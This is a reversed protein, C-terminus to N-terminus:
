KQVTEAREKKGDKQQVKVEDGPCVTKKNCAKECAAKCNCKYAIYAFIWTSLLFSLFLWFQQSWLAWLACWSAIAVGLLPWNKLIDQM